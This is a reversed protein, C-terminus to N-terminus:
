EDVGNNTGRVQLRVRSRANEQVENNEADEASDGVEDVVGPDGGEEGLLLAATLTALACLLRREAGLLDVGSVLNSNDTGIAGSDRGACLGVVLAPDGRRVQLARFGLADTAAGGLGLGPGLNLVNYKRPNAPQLLPKRQM